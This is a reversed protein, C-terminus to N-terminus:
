SLPRELIQQRRDIMAATTSLHRVGLMSSKKIIPYQLHYDESGKPNGEYDVGRERMLKVDEETTEILSPPLSIERPTPKLHEASLASIFNKNPVQAQQELNEEM